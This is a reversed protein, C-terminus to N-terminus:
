YIFPTSGKVIGGGGGFLLPKKQLLPDSTVDYEVEDIQFAIIRIVSSSTCGLEVWETQLFSFLCISEYTILM